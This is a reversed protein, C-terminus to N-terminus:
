VLDGVTGRARVGDRWTSIEENIFIIKGTGSVFASSPGFREQYRQHRLTYEYDVECRYSTLRSWPLSKQFM